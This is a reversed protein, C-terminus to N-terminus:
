SSPMHPLDIGDIAHKFNAPVRLDRRAARPARVTV